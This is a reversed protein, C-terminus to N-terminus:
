DTLKDTRGEMQRDIEGDTRGDTPLGIWGDMM